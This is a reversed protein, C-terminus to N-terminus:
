LKLCFLFVDSHLIIVSFQSQGVIFVLKEFPFDSSINCKESCNERFYFFGEVSANSPLSSQLYCLNIDSKPIFKVNESSDIKKLQFVAYNLNDLIKIVECLHPSM